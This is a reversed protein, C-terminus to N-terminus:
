SIPTRSLDCQMYSNFPLHHCNNSVIATMTKLHIWLKRIIHPIWVLREHYKTWAKQDQHKQHNKNVFDINKEIARSDEDKKEVEIKDLIKNTCQAHWLKIPLHM